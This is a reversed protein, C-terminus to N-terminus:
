YLPYDYLKAYIVTIVASLLGWYWEIEIFLWIWLTSIAPARTIVTYYGATDVMRVLYCGCLASGLTALLMSYRTFPHLTYVLLMFLPIVPASAKLTPWWEVDQGYQKLAVASLTCHITFLSLSLLIAYGKRMEKEEDSSVARAASGPRSNAGDVSRRKAHAYEERLTADATHRREDIEEILVM